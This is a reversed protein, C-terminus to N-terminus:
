AIDSEPYKAYGLTGLFVTSTSQYQQFSHKWYSVTSSNRDELEVTAICMNSATVAYWILVNKNKNPKCYTGRLNSLHELDMLFIFKQPSVFASKLFTFYHSSSM